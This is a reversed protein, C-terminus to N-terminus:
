LYEGNIKATAHKLILQGNDNQFYLVLRVYVGGSFSRALPSKSIYIESVGPEDVGTVYASMKQLKAGDLVQRVIDIPSGEHLYRAAIESVDVDFVGKQQAQVADYASVLDGRLNKGAEEADARFDRNMAGILEPLTNSGPAAMEARACQAFSVLALVGVITRFSLTM